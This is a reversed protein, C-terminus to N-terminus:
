GLIPSRIRLMWLRGALMAEIYCGFAAFELPNISTGARPL